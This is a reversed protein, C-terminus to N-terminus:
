ALPTHRLTRYAPGRPTLRSEYLTVRKVCWTGFDINEEADMAATLSVNRATERCRGLTIHPRFAAEKDPFGYKKLQRWLNTQLAELDPSPDVGAWLTKPNRRTGFFGLGYVRSTFAPTGTCVRTVAENVHPLIAPAIEGLFALTLHFQEHACWKVDVAAPTLRAVAAALRTKIDDPVTIALFVRM